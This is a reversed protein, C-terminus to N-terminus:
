ALTSDSDAVSRLSTENLLMRSRSSGTVAAARLAAAAVM